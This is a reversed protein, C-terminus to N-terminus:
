VSTIKKVKYIGHGSQKIDANDIKLTSISINNLNYFYKLSNTMGMYHTIALEYNGENILKTIPAIYTNFYENAIKEKLPDNSLYQAIKPGIIDYEVLLSKYRKDRQLVKNRFNRLTELYINNDPLKLIDCLMTTLYCGSSNSHDISYQHASSSEKCSRKYARCFRNCELENAKHRELRKECWFEGFIDGTDLDLYTCESCTNAM